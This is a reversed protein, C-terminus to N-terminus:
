SGVAGELVQGSSADLTVLKGEIGAIVGQGCGVVCPVGLERSVVAAHSTAGGIETLIGAVVAM